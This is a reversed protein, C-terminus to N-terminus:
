DVIKALARHCQSLTIILVTLFCKLLDLLHISDIEILLLMVQYM